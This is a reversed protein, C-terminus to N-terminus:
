CFWKICSVRRAYAIEVSTNSSLCEKGDQLLAYFSAMDIFYDILAIVLIISMWLLLYPLLLLLM